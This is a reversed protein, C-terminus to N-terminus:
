AGGTQPTQGLAERRWESPSQGTEERFARNFPGLSAFGIDFAIASISTRAENPDALRAKAAEIRHHNVFSPFNRYGLQDNILRRLQAEPINVRVALNAITLGEERWVQDDKMLADLRALDAQAARNLATAAANAPQAAPRPAGFLDPRWQLFAWTSALCIVAFTTAYVDFYWDPTSSYTWLTNLGRMALSYITVIMLFPGRLRRRTEVLDGKWGRWVVLMTHILLGAQIINSATAIWRSVDAPSYQAALGIAILAGVVALQWPQVKTDDFLTRVSLWFWGVTGFALLNLPLDFFVLLQSRPGPLGPVTQAVIVAFAAVSLFFVIGTWRAASRPARWISLVNALMAGIAIGILVLELAGM